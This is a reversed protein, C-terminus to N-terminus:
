GNGAAYRLRLIAGAALTLFGFVATAANEASAVMEEGRTKMGLFVAIVSYASLFLSIILSYYGIETM